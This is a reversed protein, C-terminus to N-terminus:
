PFLNEIDRLFPLSKDKQSLTIESAAIQWNINLERDNWAVGFDHAASYLNTVKYIVETNEELTIFGHAFGIPIFLQQWNEHSLEVAIYKKFTPSSRRLDVAIDIIRGRAVRVLKDQAYPATQFHLGRLTGIDRSLSHNDQVFQYDLGANRWTASNYTESFFGREDGHKKPTILKLGPIELDQFM